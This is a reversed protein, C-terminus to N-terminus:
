LKQRLLKAILSTDSIQLFERYKAALSKVAKKDKSNYVVILKECKPKQNFDEIPEGGGSEIIEKLNEAPIVTNPTMFVSFKEFLKPKSKAEILGRLSFEKRKELEADHLIFKSPDLWKGAKQSAEIFEEGVTPIRKCVAALFKSTIKIKNATLLFDAESIKEVIKGGLQHCADQCKNKLEPGNSIVISYSVVKPIEKQKPINVKTVKSPGAASEDESESDYKMIKRRIHKTRLPVALRTHPVKKQLQEAKQSDELDADSVDGTTQTANILDLFPEFQSDSPLSPLIDPTNQDLVLPSATPTSLVSPPTSVSVPKSAIVVVGMDERSNSDEDSSMLIRNVVKASGAKAATPIVPHFIQTVDDYCTRRKKQTPMFAQTEDFASLPVTKPKLESQRKLQVRTRLNVILPQTEDFVKRDVIRHEDPFDEKDETEEEDSVQNKQTEANMFDEDMSEPESKFKVQKSNKTQDVTTHSNQKKTEEPKDHEKDNPEEQDKSVSDNLDPTVSRDREDDEDPRDSELTKIVKSVTDPMDQSLMETEAFAEIPSSEAAGNRTEGFVNESNEMLREDDEEIVSLVTGSSNSNGCSDLEFPASFPDAPTEPLEFGHDDIQTAETDTLAETLNETADVLIRAIGSVGFSTMNSEASEYQSGEIGCSENENPNCFTVEVIGFRVTDLHNLDYFKMAELPEFTEEKNIRVSTQNSCLDVLQFVGSETAIIVAHKVQM